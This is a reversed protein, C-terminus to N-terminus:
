FEFDKRIENRINKFYKETQFFGQIIVWDPCKNFINQDFSFSSESVTPRDPDIYQINLENTSGLKFGSLLEHRAAGYITEGYGAPPPLCFQYGNNKAIGKLAAFQFMQNGLRGLQGLANFGIM